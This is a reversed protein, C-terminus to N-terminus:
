AADRAHAFPHHFDDLAKDPTAEIRAMRTRVLFVVGLDHAATAPEIVTPDTTVTSDDRVDFALV